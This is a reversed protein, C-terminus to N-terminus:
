LSSRWWLYHRLALLFHLLSLVLSLLFRLLILLLKYFHQLSLLLLRFFLSFSPHCRPRAMREAAFSYSSCMSNLLSWTLCSMFSYGFFLSFEASAAPSSCRSRSVTFSSASLTSVALSAPPLCRPRGTSRVKFPSSSEVLNWLSWTQDVAHFSM